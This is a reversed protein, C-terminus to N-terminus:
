QPREHTQSADEALWRKAIALAANLAETLQQVSVPLHERRGLRSLGRRNQGIRVVTQGLTPPDVAVQVRDRADQNLYFTRVETDQYKSYWRVSNAEAWASLIPDISRFASM